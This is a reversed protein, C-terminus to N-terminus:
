AQAKMLYRQRVRALTTEENERTVDVVLTVLARGKSRQVVEEVTMSLVVTDGEWVPGLFEASIGLMAIMADHLQDSFDTAGLATVATVLLGHALLGQLGREAAYARDYHIPHRDGTLAAFGSFAQQDLRVTRRSVQEGITFGAAYRQQLSHSASM